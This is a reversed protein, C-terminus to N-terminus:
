QKALKLVADVIAERTVNAGLGLGAKLTSVFFENEKRYGM